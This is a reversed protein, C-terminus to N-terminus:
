FRLPTAAKCGSCTYMRVPVCPPLDGCAGIKNDSENHDPTVRLLPSTATRRARAHKTMPSRAMETQMRRSEDRRFQTIEQQFGDGDKNRPHVIRGQKLRFHVFLRNQKLPAAGSRDRALLAGKTGEIDDQKESAFEWTGNSRERGKGCAATSVTARLRLPDEEEEEEGGGGEWPVAAGQGRTPGGGGACAVNKRTRCPSSYLGTVMLAM